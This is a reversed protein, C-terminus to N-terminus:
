FKSKLELVWKKQNKSCFRYPDLSPTVDPPPPPPEDDQYLHEDNVPNDPPLVVSDEENPIDDDFSDENPINDDFSDVENPIDDELSNIGIFLFFM